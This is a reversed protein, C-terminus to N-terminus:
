DLLAESAAAGKGITGIAVLAASALGQTAVSQVKLRVTGLATGFFTMAM